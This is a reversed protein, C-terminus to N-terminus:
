YFSNSPNAEGAKERAQFLVDLHIKTSFSISIQQDEESTDINRM